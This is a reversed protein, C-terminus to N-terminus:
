RRTPSCLTSTLTSPPAPASEDRLREAKARTHDTVAVVSFGAERYAALQMSAVWGCGVLGIGHTM